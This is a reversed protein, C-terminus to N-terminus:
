VVSKRDGPSRPHHVSSRRRAHKTSSPPSALSTTVPSAPSTSLPTTSGNHASHYTQTTYKFPQPHLSSSSPSRLPTKAGSSLPGLTTNINEKDQHPVLSSPISSSAGGADRPIESMDSNLMSHTYHASSPRSSSAASATSSIHTNPQRFMTQAQSHSLSRMRTATTTTSPPSQELTTSLRALQASVTAVLISQLDARSLSPSGTGSRSGSSTTSAITPPLALHAFARPSTTASVSSARGPPSITSPPSSSPNCHQQHHDYSTHIINSYPHCAFSPRSSSNSSFSGARSVPLSQAQRSRRKNQPSPPTSLPPAPNM